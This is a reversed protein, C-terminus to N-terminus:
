TRRRLLGLLALGIFLSAGSPGGASSCGGIVADDGPPNNGNPPDVPDASDDVTVTISQTSEQLGDTAIVRIEHDGLGVGEARLQYPATTSTDVLVGDVYLDVSTVAINDTAAAYVDFDPPVLAANQPATISLTPPTLDGPTGGTGIRATLLAVSDQTPRCSPFGQNVLGCARATNEGCSVLGTKFSRNGNYDLYTMPDSANLVHDLGYSHAIEQAAIEAIQRMSQGVQQASVAFTFVISDEIVGCSPTFPSVGLIVGESPPPVEDAPLADGATGGFIAEIHRTGAPPPQDSVTVGFPAFMQQLATRVANWNADTVNWAPFNRTNPAITSVNTASNDSNGSTLTAGTKNLYIYRSAALAPNPSDDPYVDDAIPTEVVRRALLSGDARAATIVLPRRTADGGPIPANDEAVAAAPVLLLSGLVLKSM